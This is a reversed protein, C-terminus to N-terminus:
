LIVGLIFGDGEEVPLYLVLVRDDVRPMWTTTHTGPHSHETETDPAVQVGMGPYQLVFLWDSTMGMDDFWVRVRRRTSDVTRVIGVRVINELITINEM